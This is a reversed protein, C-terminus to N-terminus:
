DEGGIHHLSFSCLFSFCSGVMVYMYLRLLTLYVMWPGYNLPSCEIFHLHHFARTQKGLFFFAQRQFAYNLLKELEEAEKM